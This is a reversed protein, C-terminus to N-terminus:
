GVWWARADRTNGDTLAADGRRKLYEAKLLRHLDRCVLCLLPEQNPHHPTAAVECRALLSEASAELCLLAPGM